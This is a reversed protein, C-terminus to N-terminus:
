WPIERGRHDFFRGSHEPGLGDIVGVLSEAAMRPELPAGEGGMATRVWGPHLLTCIVGEERLECSLSRWGMDLAAKSCRYAYLGGSRNDAISGLISSVAIMKGAESRAVHRRFTGALVLPAICNVHFTEFWAPVDIMEIRDRPGAVGANAILVDVTERVLRDALPQYATQDRVDLAHVVVEGTVARLGHAQDPARCCAHVRWGRRAYVEVLALGLGRGAGTILVTPM